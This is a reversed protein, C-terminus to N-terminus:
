ASVCSSTAAMLPRITMSGSKVEYTPLTREPLISAFLYNAPTRAQNIIQFAANPGLERLADAFTFQM